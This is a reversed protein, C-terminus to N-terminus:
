LSTMNRWKPYFVAFTELGTSSHGSQLVVCGSLTLRRLILREESHSGRTNPIKRNQCGFNLIQNKFFLQRYFRFLGSYMNDPYMCVVRMCFKLVIYKPSHLPEFFLYPHHRWKLSFCNKVNIITKFSFSRCKQFGSVFSSQIHM